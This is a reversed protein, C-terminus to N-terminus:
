ANKNNKQHGCMCQGICGCEKVCGCAKAHDYYRKIHADMMTLLSPINKALGYWQHKGERRSIVFGYEKLNKLSHSLRTQELHLEHQLKNVSKEGKKLTNLIQLRTPDAITRFFAVYSNIKM